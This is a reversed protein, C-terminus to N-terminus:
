SRFVSRGQGEVDGIGGENEFALPLSEICQRRAGDRGLARHDEEAFVLLNMEYPRGDVSVGADRRLRPRPRLSPFGGLGPSCPTRIPELMGAGEQKLM